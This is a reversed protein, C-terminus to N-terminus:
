GGTKVFATSDDESVDATAAEYGGEVEPAEVSGVIVICISRRARDVVGLGVDGPADASSSSATEECRM